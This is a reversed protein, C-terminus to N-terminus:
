CSTPQHYGLLDGDLSWILIERLPNQKCIKKWEKIITFDGFGIGSSGNKGRMAYDPFESLYTGIEEITPFATPSWPAVGDFAGRVQEIFKKACTRRIRGDGCQAIHNGTEIITAMPLLLQWDQGIKKELEDLIQQKQQNKGPIDLINVFVSTDILCISM